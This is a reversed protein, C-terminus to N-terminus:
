DRVSLQFYNHFPLLMVLDFVRPEDVLWVYKYLLTRVAQPGGEPGQISEDIAEVQVFLVLLTM